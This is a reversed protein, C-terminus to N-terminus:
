QQIDIGTYTIKDAPIEDPFKADVGGKVNIYLALHYTKGKIFTDEETKTGVWSIKNLELRDDSLTIIVDSEKAGAKFGSMTIGLTSIEDTAFVAINFTTLLICM